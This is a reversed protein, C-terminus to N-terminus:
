NIPIPVPVELRGLKVRQGDVKTYGDVFLKGRESAIRYIDAVLRVDDECYNLVEEVKGEQLLAPAHVGEGTKGELSNARSLGDLGGQRIRVQGNQAEPLDDLAARVLVNLDVHKGRIETVDGHAELVGLDFAEGNYSVCVAAERLHKLMAAAEQYRFAVDTELDVVVGVGFGFLDPRSWPSEGALEAAHKEEVESALNQTELDFALTNEKM